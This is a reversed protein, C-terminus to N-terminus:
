KTSTRYTIKARRELQERFHLNRIIDRIESQIQCVFFEAGCGSGYSFIGVKKGAAKERETELLSILGMYVSGTYINGVEKVGLLGPEVKQIFSESFLKEKSDPDLGDFELDILHRHAKKAMNAFPMHYILYDLGEM